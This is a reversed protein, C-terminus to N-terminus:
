HFILPVEADIASLMASLLRDTAMREYNDEDLPLSATLENIRNYLPGLHELDIQGDCDSHVWLVTLIDKFKHGDPWEGNTNMFPDTTEWLPMKDEQGDVWTYGALRAIYNRIRHFNTYTCHFDGPSLELGM